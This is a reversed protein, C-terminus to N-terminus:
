LQLKLVGISMIQQTVGDFNHAGIEIATMNLKRDRKFRLRTLDIDIRRTQLLNKPIKQAIGALKRGFM